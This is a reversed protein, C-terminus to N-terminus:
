EQMKREGKTARNPLEGFFQPFEDAFMAREAQPPSEVARSV